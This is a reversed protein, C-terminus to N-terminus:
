DWQWLAGGAPVANAVATTSQTLVGAQMLTLGPTAIVVVVWYTVLNWLTAAVLVAIELSTLTQIAAWVESLDAFQKLVFWFIAVLFVLSVLIRLFKKVRPSLMSGSSKRSLAGTSEKAPPGAKPAERVNESV